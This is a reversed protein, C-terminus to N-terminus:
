TCPEDDRCHNRNTTCVLSAVWEVIIPPPLLSGNWRSPHPSCCGMGGHHPPPPAVWEVTIPPPLLAILRMRLITMFHWVHHHIMAGPPAQEDLPFPM